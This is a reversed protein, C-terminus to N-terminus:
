PIVKTEGLSGVTIRDGGINGGSLSGGGLSGAGSETVEFVGIGISLNVTFSMNYGCYQKYLHKYIFTFQFAISVAVNCVIM